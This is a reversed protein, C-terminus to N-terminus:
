TYEEQPTVQPPTTPQTLGTEPPPGGPSRQFRDAAMVAEPAESQPAVRQMAQQAMQELMQMGQQKMMEAQVTGAQATVLKQIEAALDSQKQIEFLMEYYQKDEPAMELTNMLQQIVTRTQPIFMDGHGALIKDVDSLQLRKDIQETPSSQKLSIVVQARPLSEVSNLYVRQGNRFAPVNFEVYGAADVKKIKRYLGKYTIQAQNYWMEAKDALYQQWNEYLILSGLKTAAHRMRFLIGSEDRTTAGELAPTVPLVRDFYDVLNAMDRFISDPVEKTPVEALINAPSGDVPHVYGPHTKNQQFQKVGRGGGMRTQDALLAGSAANAIIQDKKSERYNFTRQVDLAYEAAGKEMGLMRFFSFRLYGIMGCQIPHKKASVLPKKLVHPACVSYYLINDEYPLEEIDMWSIGTSEIFDRVEREEVNIPLPLVSADPMHAYLRTTKYKELWRYELVLEKSGWNQPGLKYIALDDTKPYTYYGDVMKQHAKLEADDVDWKEAIEDVTMYAQKLAERWDRIDNTQWYPDKLVNGPINHIFSIAGTKRLSYDIVMEESGAHQLGNMLVLNESARYNFQDKDAYYWHKIGQTLSSYEMDLPTFQYDWQESQISGALTALKQQLINISTIHRDQNLLDQRAEEPWSEGNLDLVAKMAEFMRDRASQEAALWRTHRDQVFMCMEADSSRSWRSTKALAAPAMRDTMMNSINGEIPM